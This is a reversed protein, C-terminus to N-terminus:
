WRPRANDVAPRNTTDGDGPSPEAHPPPQLKDGRGLGKLRLAFRWPKSEGAKRTIEFRDAVFRTDFHNAPNDATYSRSKRTAPRAAGVAEDARVAYRATEVAQKLSDYQGSTCLHAVAKGSTLPTRPETGSGSGRAHRVRQGDPPTQTVIWGIAAMVGMALAVLVGKGVASKRM